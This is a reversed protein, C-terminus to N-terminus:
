ANLFGSTLVKNWAFDYKFMKRNSNVLDVYFLGQGFLVIARGDKIIREYQKWLEDFPIQVDLKNKTVGYPLDCLIMDVSSDPIEKMRELCDGQMLDIM